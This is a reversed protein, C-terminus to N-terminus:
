DLLGLAELLKPEWEGEALITRWGALAAGDLNIQRDDIFIVDDSGILKTAELYFDLNPKVKGIRSSVCMADFAPLSGNQEIIRELWDAHFNTALGVPHGAASVRRVFDLRSPIFPDSPWLAETLKTSPVGLASSLDDVGLLGEDMRTQMARFISVAKIPDLGLKPSIEIFTALATTPGLHDPILVGGVDFYVATKM